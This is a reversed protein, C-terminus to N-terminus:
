RSVDTTVLVDFLKSQQNGTPAFPGGLRRNFTSNKVYKEAPCHFFYDRDFSEPPNRSFFILFGKQYKGRKLVSLLFEFLCEHRPRCTHMKYLHIEDSYFLCSRKSSRPSFTIILCYTPRDCQIKCLFRSKLSWKNM